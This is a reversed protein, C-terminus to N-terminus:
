QQSLVAQYLIAISEEMEATTFHGFGLRTATLSANQYLLTRPIFLNNRACSRSLQLLNIPQKWTAWVALGGSPKRFDLYEHLQQELLSTFYDRREQYVKLSKKLYRHIDGEEIMEGLVQEMMIDGQRDIIGLHKRMEIMLNQPAVIFGTRFGPALSKGFSGIYVVMGNTDASALPLVPAKDYHFDYDYDDELIIFGFQSALDLLAIRREASLTVTTPYHHHPTIYLMRVQQRECIERVADVDIGEEDIPVSMIHAGSKQFIMNVSFYSMEGVLVVEGVSLLIESAIYVSMETSRTILINDKSIHLGRSLNLYNSLNKKFYESGDHNYYGLKKRNSKRKLNASYLSSLHDIQTLRIDPIGDNFVYECASHEFPNDLLMSKRFSYGTSSPYVALQNQQASRIKQPKDDSKALVFTGQNPRMEVWGQAHLEDYAAVITNRHIQLLNGLTRTGPLKTGATLFGRQIANILQNSIQLYVSSDLNRDIQIFSQYPVSVPSAM